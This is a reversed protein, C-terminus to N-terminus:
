EFPVEIVFDEFIELSKPAYVHQGDKISYYRSKRRDFFLKCMGTSGIGKPKAKQVIVHMENKLYPEGDSGTFIDDESFPPRYICIMTEGKRAWAQGGAVDKRTPPIVYGDKHFLRDSDRPHTVITIHKEKDRAYRRVRGLLVELWIDRPMGEFDSKLENWPDISILDINFGLEEEKKEVAEFVQGLTIEDKGPDIIFFHEQIFKFADNMEDRSPAYAGKWMPNKGIYKWMLEVYISEKQGTEPSFIAHKLGHYMSLQIDRELLFESKGSYEHGYMYTTAGMKVSYLGRLDEFGLEYGRVYGEKILEKLEKETDKLTYIM